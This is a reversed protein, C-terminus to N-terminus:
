EVMGLPSAFYDRLASGLHILRLCATSSPRSARLSDRDAAKAIARMKEAQMNASILDRSCVGPVAVLLAIFSVFAHVMVAPHHWAPQGRRARFLQAVM